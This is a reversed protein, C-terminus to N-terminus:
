KICWAVILFNSSSCNYIACYNYMWPKKLPITKQKNLGAGVWGEDVCYKIGVRGSSIVTPPSRTILWGQADSDSLPHRSFTVRDWHTKRHTLTDWARAEKLQIPHSYWFDRGESRRMWRTKLISTLLSSTLLWNLNEWHTHTNVNHRVVQSTM